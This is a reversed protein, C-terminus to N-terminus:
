NLIEFVSKAIAKGLLPPVANGIQKIVQVRSGHFLYNDDFSQIRAGERPTLARDQYPHICKSSAPNVFKVTITPAPENASIRSYCNSFGSTILHKPIFSINDGAHKIIELMKPPHNTAKHLTLTGDSGVRRERQYANLPESAYYTASKGSALAPLDGIAEMANLALPLNERVIVMKNKNKIGITKGDFSHTPFPFHIKTGKKAGIMIFRERKQPVGYNAANLIKWECDYGLNHFVDEIIELTLGNNHSVLGVVNEMVFVKPTFYNVYLAFQEFLTNRPDEEESSRFPRISSFGQCPPGGIIVDVVENKLYENFLSPKTERIDKNIVLCDKHNLRTTIAADKDLEVAGVVKFRESFSTFGHSFGGTGSFLDLM